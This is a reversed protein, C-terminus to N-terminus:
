TKKGKSKAPPTAKKLVPKPESEESEEEEEDEEDEDEEEEEESEEESEKVKKMLDKNHAPQLSSKGNEPKFVVEPTKPQSVTTAVSKSNEPKFVVESIKPQSVTTDVSKDNDSKATITKNKNQFVSKSLTTRAKNSSPRETIVMEICKVVISCKRKGSDDTNRSAWFKNIELAFKAKCKWPFLRRMDDLCNIEEPVENPEGNSDINRVTTKIRMPDDKKRNKDYHTFLKVKVRRYSEKSSSKEADDDDDEDEGTKKVFSIYKLKKIPAKVKTQTNFTEVFDKNGDTNIKTVFYEDLPVFCNKDLDQAGEDTELLPLWFYMCDNDTKRYKEDLSPIGGKEMSIEDTIIICREGKKDVSKDENTYRYRPFGTYQPQDKQEPGDRITDLYFYETKFDCANVNKMDEDSSKSAYTTRYNNTETTQNM